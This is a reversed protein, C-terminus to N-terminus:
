GSAFFTKFTAGRRAPVKIGLKYACTDLSQKLAMAPICVVGERNVTCKERWTRADYDDHSERDLFPVDHKASQSYNSGPINEIYVKVHRM